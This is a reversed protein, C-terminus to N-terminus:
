GGLLTAYKPLVATNIAVSEWQSVKAAWWEGALRRVLLLRMGKQLRQGTASRLGEAEVQWVQGAAMETM